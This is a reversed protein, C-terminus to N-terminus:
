NVPRCNGWECTIVQQNEKCFIAYAEDPWQNKLTYINADLCTQKRAIKEISFQSRGPNSPEAFGNALTPILSGKAVPNPHQDAYSLLERNVNFSIMPAAAFLELAYDCAKTNLSGLHQRAEKEIMKRQERLLSIAQHSFSMGNYRMIARTQTSWFFSDAGLLLQWNDSEWQKYRELTADTLKYDPHQCLTNIAISHNLLGLAEAKIELYSVTTVPTSRCSLLLLLAGLFVTIITVRKLQLM